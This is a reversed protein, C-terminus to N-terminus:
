GCDWLFTDITFQIDIIDSHLKKSLLFKKQLYYNKINKVPKSVTINKSLYLKIKFITKILFVM